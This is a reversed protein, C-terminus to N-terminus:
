IVAKQEKEELVGNIFREGAMVFPIINYGKLKHWRKESEIGLKYVMTLVTTRSGCNRTKYTRHRITAFTSEVPNTTRIHVWHIAPFDYFTFLQEKDKVLCAAAKPYKEGYVKVFNDFSQLASEKDPAMYMEQIEKKATTQLKRPLKDLINATKHVWCRQEKTGPFVEELAAWFGLAGDGIALKPGNDLGRKKLDLLLSKWSLKSERFGEEMALFEKHGESDAGIIVLTCSKEEEGRVKFYIGDAWFYAYEKQSLDRKTWEKYEKEWVAKLNAVTSASISGANGLIAKLATDFDGTSVGKLYLVPILTDLSPTRRLFRPLINSSFGEESTRARLKRDDVRPQKIEIPGMSTLIERPTRYGNRTALQHGCKDRQNQHKKIFDDVEEEIVAQLMRRAGDRLVEELLSGGNVEPSIPDNTTNNGM